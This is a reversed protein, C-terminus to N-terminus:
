FKVRLIQLLTHRARISAYSEALHKIILKVVRHAGGQFQTGFDSELRPLSELRAHCFLEDEGCPHNARNLRVPKHTTSVVYLNLIFAPCVRQQKM